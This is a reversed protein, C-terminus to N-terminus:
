RPHPVVLPRILLPGVKRGAPMPPKERKFEPQRGPFVKAFRSARFYLALAGQASRLHVIEKFYNSDLHSEVEPIRSEIVLLFDARYNGPQGNDAYYGIGTFDGFM